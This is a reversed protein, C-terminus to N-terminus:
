ATSTGPTDPSKGASVFGLLRVERGRLTQPAHVSRGIFEELAMPTVPADALEEYATQEVGSAAGDRSAPPARSTTTPM